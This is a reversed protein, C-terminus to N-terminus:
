KLLNYLRSILKLFLAYQQEIAKSNSQYGDRNYTAYGMPLLITTENAASIFCDMFQKTFNNDDDVVIPFCERFSYFAEMDYNQELKGFFDFPLELLLRILNRIRKSRRSKPFYSMFFSLSYSSYHAISKKFHRSNYLHKEFMEEYAKEGEEEIIYEFDFIAGELTHEKNKLSYNLFSDQRGQNSLKNLFHAYGVKLAKEQISNILSAEVTWLTYDWDIMHLIDVELEQCNNYHVDLQLEKKFLLEALSYNIELLDSEKSITKEEILSPHYRELYHIISKAIILNENFNFQEFYGQGILKPIDKILDFVTPVPTAKINEKTRNRRNIKSKSNRSYQVTDYM